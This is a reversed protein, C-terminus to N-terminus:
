GASNLRELRDQQVTLMCSFDNAESVTNNRMMKQQCEALLAHISDSPIGKEIAAQLLFFAPQIKGESFFALSQEELMSTCDFGAATLRDLYRFGEEKRGSVLFAAALRGMAPPYDIHKKLISELTSIAIRVDGAILEAASYNLAAERLDPNLGMAMKSYIAAKDYQKLKLHAFGLDMFNSADDSNLEIVKKWINVAEEYEGIESAQIALEKLAYYDGKTKEVKEIGLRYYEKGKTIVQDQNLRGYHHVPVDCVKIKIGNKQLAPEVLEHVPNVFNVRKDNAFLRVKPSPVWGKGAEESFYTGENATWNKSGPQNTYNRTIMTYAVRKGVANKIVKKLKEHDLPSVVEDADLVLIWDGSAKSLSYNRAESFDNTWPFDFVKAGLASALVKTKDSSGTDIVIIEDAIPKVSMLCKALNLEENKVIMCVSLSKRASGHRINLPGTKARIELAASLIGEDIGFQMMAKEIDQMAQEHKEQKILVAIMLFAIRKNNPHLAKAERFVPEARAFSDTEAVASHYASVVDGVTPSLIFGREFLHLAEIHKGAAWKLSGLNTYSEGFGPNSDIAKKFIGEATDQEGKKYAVVGMVNLALPMSPDIALAREAYEQAKEDRELAEECYGLLALQKADASGQPVSELIGLADNYRKADILMEALKLYLCMDDPAHKFAGLMSATANEIHGHRYFDDARSIANEIILKKGFREGADKGSWKETFVKRNGSLSAGYDIRNGVFTRSGYHHIFVDGAIVNRYGALSARLCFDDDEFNGSGFSEDLLGIEEILQRRFLMCFGVVRRYPIRRHRNKHRFARAYDTLGDMSSYGVFPVKQPGSISNTLPGVIGIHPASTLCELMGDLWNETVVVDNNLLLIFEGTAAEIGQNCGKSFGLNKKNEVLKYNSNHKALKRLWKVTGDGSGNDIFIIEHPEPTHKQISEVCEKTYKHQNLTLIIISVTGSHSAPEPVGDMNGQKDQSWIANLEQVISDRDPIQAIEAQYRQYIRSRNTKFEAQRSSTMTTGDVRWNVQVTQKKLHHFPTLASLRLWFEWDELVSFTEDFLGAKIAMEREFVFCNVPAINGILLKSRDFDISYPVHKRRLEYDDGVRTYEARVADTYIVKWGSRLAELATELHDKYFCDDDDLLAIYRGKANRIGTNRAASLGRNELHTLYRIRFDQCADILASVDSGGDNVICIEINQVTQKRISEIAISLMEPRNFTPVIVSIEPVQDKNRKLAADAFDVDKQPYVEPNNLVIQAFKQNFERLAEQYVGTDHRRYKFLPKPIRQGTFGRSGAAVWFDWDELGKVNTRYGGVERWIKKRYLACYSIQNAYRLKKLDYDGASVLQSVGDFDKRDTYAISVTKDKELVDLCEEIMFPEIADDADLPLIYEGGAREIGKNRAIAPQGSNGQNLVTIRHKPYKAVLGKATELTHDTSGDNVIIIEINQHTQSIVSAVAEALYRAYNYCPIIISVLPRNKKETDPPTAAKKGGRLSLLNSLMPSAMMGSIAAHQMLFQIVPM